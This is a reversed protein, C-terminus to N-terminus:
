LKKYKIENETFFAKMMHAQTMTVEFEFTLKYTKAKPAEEMVSPRVPPIFPTIPESRESLGDFSGESEKFTKELGERERREQAERLAKLAAQKALAKKLDHTERYVDLMLLEFESNLNRIFDLDECCTEIASQIEKQADGLKYSSNAWRSNLVDDWKLYDKAESGEIESEFFAQLENLKAQKRRRDFEKCQSDINETSEDCLGMLVKCQNEFEAFPEMWQKKAAIKQANIGDKVKRIRARANKSEALSEETVVMTTYPRLEEELWEKVAEFNTEIQQPNLCSLDTRIEFEMQSM